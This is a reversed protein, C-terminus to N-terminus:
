DQENIRNGMHSPPRLRDTRDIRKLPFQGKYKDLKFNYKYKYVVVM